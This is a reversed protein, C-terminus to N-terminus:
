KNRKKDRWTGEPEPRGNEVSAETKHFPVERTEIRVAHEKPQVAQGYAAAYEQTFEAGFFIILSSYYIWVLLVIVSGAAGYASGPDFNSLYFSILYKGVIFLVATIFAGVRVDRWRIYADPLYRYIMAFLVTTVSLSIVLDIIRILVVTIGPLVQALYDTFFELLASIVFSMLLLLAVSLILGFSLLRDRVFNWASGATTDPKAKVNWISNISEQLTVFFTTAAFILTGVGIIASIGGQKQQNFTRISDQISAAAKAGVLGDIQSFLKGTVAEQGFFTGAATIIILLLPPLSFIANYALAGALRLSNNEIFNSATCKLISGLNAATYRTAM